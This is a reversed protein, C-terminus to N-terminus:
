PPDPGISQGHGDDGARASKRRPNLGLPRPLAHLHRACIGRLMVLVRTSGLRERFARVSREVGAFLDPFLGTVTGFMTRVMAVRRRLWAVAAGLTVADREAAPRLTDAAKELGATAEVTAVAQEIDDLTGPMRSAYFDPLLGFTTRTEPCYYRAVFAVAPVKRMYPAIRRLGCTGPQCVPCAALTAQKWGEATVYQEFTLATSFRLQAKRPGRHHSGDRAEEKRSSADPVM